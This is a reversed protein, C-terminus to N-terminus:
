EGQSENNTPTEGLSDDPAPAREGITNSTANGDGQMPKSDVPKPDVKAGERLMMAGETIVSDGTELGNLIVWNNQYSPGTIVEQKSATNDPGVLWVSKTGDPNISVAKQPVIISKQAGIEEITARVFMGPLLLGDPNPFVSRLQITGTNEDVALDTADLTGKQPYTDGTNGLLITAEFSAKQDPDMRSKMLREQLQQAEAASQSLDVYVPDLQRVTALEMDQQATVLAGQTVASPGIYGAIPSSVKTYDLNLKATTVEAEALSVAAQAQKVSANADDFEQQSVANAEILRQYRGQLANANELEARATQLNARARQYDAEYRAPDIQYLQQGDEVFSGEKFLRQQIIGSVQPRIEATMFAKVRGPLENTIAIQQPEITIISVPKPPQEQGQQGSQQQSSNDANQSNEEGCGNLFLLCLGALLITIKM